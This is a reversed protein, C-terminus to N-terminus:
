KGKAYRYGGYAAVALGVFPHGMSAFVIGGVLWLISDRSKKTEQYQPYKESRQSM